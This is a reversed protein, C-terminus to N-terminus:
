NPMEADSLIEQCFATLASEIGQGGQLQEVLASIAQQTVAPEGPLLMSRMKDTGAPWFAMTLLIFALFFAGILQGLHSRYTRHSQKRHVQGDYRIVYGM